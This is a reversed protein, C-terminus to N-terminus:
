KNYHRRVTPLFTILVIVTGWVIVIAHLVGFTIWQIQVVIWVIAAVGAGLSGAWSWHINKFPNLTNPWRWDPCKWLGYAIFIPYIGIFVSLLIGPVLFNSFPTRDLNSLPMQILHGDPAIFFTVGAVLANLGLFLLLAVLAWVTGTTRSRAKVSLIVEKFPGRM